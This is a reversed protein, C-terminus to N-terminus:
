RSGLRKLQEEAFGVINKDKGRDVVLEYYKIANKTDGKKEYTNAINSLVIADNPDIKEAKKLYKLSEDYEGFILHIVSLNSLSEIHKPYQKLTALAITKMFPLLSDDNAEYLQVSYTQVSGLFVKEGDQLAEGNRWYWKNNIKKSHEIAKVIENTYEQYKYTEGLMYIKGFRIDLRDPYLAIGKDIYSYGLKLIEPKYIVQNFMYGEPEGTSDNKLVMYDDGKPEPGMGLVTTRSQNAYYNFYAIILEPDKSNQNEWRLLLAKQAVTDGLTVLSDFEQKYSQAKITWSMLVFLFVIFKSYKM